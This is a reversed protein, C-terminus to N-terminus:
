EKGTLTLTFSINGAGVGAQNSSPSVGISSIVTEAYRGSLDLDRAYKLIDAESISQGEITLRDISENIGTLMVTPPLISLLLSLDGNVMEQGTKLANLSLELDDYALKAAAAKKKLDIIVGNLEQKQAIRQNALQNTIELQAQMADMNATTSQMLLLMPVVLATVAAGGPIGIVRTLSIPKPQYPAPLVNLTAIPFTPERAPATTRCALAMNVTYRGPDIQESGKLLFNLSIVPHGTSDGLTKQLESNGTLEGSVYVPTSTNLPKEPNNVDFFKVTRDLESIIMGLRAELSLEQEPFPVTRIPQAVGESMIIIDLENPQADVIIATNTPIIRTLALSKIAMRYPELGASQLTKVLSDATKRPIAVIFVQIRARPLPLARWSLYFQDLPVPLVRRAERVVAEALMARPMVPLIAPRTLSHLGSFGLIVRKVGVKQDKLLQKIRSAVETEQLVVSGKILGPELYMDAWKKVRQGRIVLLRISMDDIYLTVTKNWM